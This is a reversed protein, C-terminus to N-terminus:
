RNIDELVERLIQRVLPMAQDRHMGPKLREDYLTRLIIADHWTLREFTKKELPRWISEPVIDVDNSPGLSQTLEETLCKFLEGGQYKPAIFIISRYVSGDRNFSIDAVCQRRTNQDTTFSVWVNALEQSTSKLVPMGTAINLESSLILIENEFQRPQDGLVWYKIAKSYKRIFPDYGNHESQFVLTDFSQVYLQVNYESAEPRAGRWGSYATLSNMTVPYASGVRIPPATQKFDRTNNDCSILLFASVTVSISLTASGAINIM